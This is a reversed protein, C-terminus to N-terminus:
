DMYEAFRAQAGNESPPVPALEPTPTASPPASPQTSETAEVGRETLVLVDTWPEVLGLGALTRRANGLSRPFILSKIRKTDIRGGDTDAILNLLESPSIQRKAWADTLPTAAGGETADITAIAEQVSCNFWEGHKHYKQLARHIAWEL